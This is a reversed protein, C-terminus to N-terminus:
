PKPTLLKDLSERVFLRRAGVKLAEIQGARVLDYLSTRGLGSYQTAEDLRLTRREAFPIKEPPLQM